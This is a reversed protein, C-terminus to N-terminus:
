QHRVSEDFNMISNVVVTAAAHEAAVRPSEFISKPAPCNGTSLLDTAQKPNVQFSELQEQHMARLIEMERPTPERSTLRKFAESSLGSIDDGHRSIM